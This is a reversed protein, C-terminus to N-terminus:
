RITVDCGHVFTVCFVAPTRPVMILAHPGGSNAIKQSCSIGSSAKTSKANPDAGAELLVAAVKNHGYEAAM